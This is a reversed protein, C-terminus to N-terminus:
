VVKRRKPPQAESRGMHLVPEEEGDDAEIQLPATPDDRFVDIVNAAAYDTAALNALKKVRDTMAGVENLLEASTLDSVAVGGFFTVSSKDAERHIVGLNQGQAILQDLLAAKARTAGLVANHQYGRPDRRGEEVVEDLDRILAELRIKYEAYIDEPDGTKIVQLVDHKLEEQLWRLTSPSCDLELICEDWSAGAAVLARLRAKLVRTESASRSGV